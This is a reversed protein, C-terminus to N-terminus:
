RAHGRAARKRRIVDVLDAVTEIGTEDQEDLSIRFRDEVEVVLTLRRLSDLALAETLRMGPALSGQWGLKARAIEALATLEDDGADSM